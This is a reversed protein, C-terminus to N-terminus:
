FLRQLPFNCKNNVNFTEADDGHRGIGAVNVQRIKHAVNEQQHLLAKVTIGTRQQHPRM